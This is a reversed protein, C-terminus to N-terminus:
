KSSRTLRLFCLSSHFIIGHLLAQFTHVSSFSLLGHGFCKLVNTETSHCVNTYIGIGLEKKKIIEFPMLFVIYINICYSHPFYLETLIHALGKPFSFKVM